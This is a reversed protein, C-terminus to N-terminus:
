NNQLVPPVAAAGEAAPATESPLAPPEPSESPTPAAPTTAEAPTNESAAVVAPQSYVADGREAEGSQVDAATFEGLKEGTVRLNALRQGPGRTTLIQGTQPEWKGYNQILVFRNDAPVSAIRGVLQPSPPPPKKEETKPKETQTACGTVWWLVALLLPFRSKM